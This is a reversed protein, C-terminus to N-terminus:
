HGFSPHIAEFFAIAEMTTENGTLGIKKLLGNPVKSNSITTKSDFLPPLAKWSKPAIVHDDCLCVLKWGTGSNGHSDLEIYHFHGMPEDEKPMQDNPTVFYRKM